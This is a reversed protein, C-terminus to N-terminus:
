PVEALGQAINQQSQFDMELAANQTTLASVQQQMARVAEEMSLDLGISRWGLTEFTLPDVSRLQSEVLQPCASREWLVVSSSSSSSFHRSLPFGACTRCFTM